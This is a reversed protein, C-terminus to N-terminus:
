EILWLSKNDNCINEIGSKTKIKVLDHWHECKKGYVRTHAAKKVLGLFKGRRDPNKESAYLNQIFAGIEIDSSLLKGKICHM